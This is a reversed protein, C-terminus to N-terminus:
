GDEKAFMELVVWLIGREGIAVAEDEGVTMCTSELISEEEECTIFGPRYVVELGKALEIGFSGTMRLVVVCM